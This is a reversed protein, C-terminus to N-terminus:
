KDIIIILPLGYRSPKPASHVQVTFLARSMWFIQVSAHINDGIKLRNSAGLVLLSVYVRVAGIAPNWPLAIRKVSSIRPGVMTGNM